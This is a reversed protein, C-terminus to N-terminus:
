ADGKKEPHTLRAALMADAYEYALRAMDEDDGTENAYLCDRALWICEAALEDRKAKRIMEDLWEIGSDPQKLHIAAYERKTLGLSAPSLRPWAPLRGDDTNDIDSMVKEM